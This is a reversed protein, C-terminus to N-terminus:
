RRGATTSVLPLDRGQAHAGCGRLGQFALGMAVAEWGESAVLIALMTAIILRPRRSDEAGRTDAIRQGPKIRLADAANRAQQRLEVLPRVGDHSVVM